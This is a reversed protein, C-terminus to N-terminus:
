LCQMIQTYVSICTQNNYHLGDMFPDSGYNVYIKHINAPFGGMMGNFAAVQPNVSAAIGATIGGKPDVKMGALNVFYVTAGKNIWEQAKTSLFSNYNDFTKQAGYATIDNIGYLIVIRKNLLNLNDVIPVARSMLTDYKTGPYGLWNATDDGVIDRMLYTRSDGIFITSRDPNIGETSGIAPKIEEIIGGDLINESKADAYPLRGEAKGHELYHRYLGDFTNGYEKVVEPNTIAYFESDFKIGDPTLITVAKVPVTLLFFTLIFLITAPLMKIYKM